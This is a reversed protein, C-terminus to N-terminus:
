KSNSMIHHEQDPVGICCRHFSRQDSVQLRLQKSVISGLFSILRKTAQIVDCLKM